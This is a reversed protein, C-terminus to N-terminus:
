GIGWGQKLSEGEDDVGALLVAAHRQFGSSPADLVGTQEFGVGGNFTAPAKYWEVARNVNTRVVIEPPPDPIPDTRDLTHDIEDAASDLCAQLLDTNAATVPIELAVALEQPTAYSM